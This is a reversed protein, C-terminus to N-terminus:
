SQPRPARNSSAVRPSLAWSLGVRLTPHRRRHHLPGKAQRTEHSPAKIASNEGRGKEVSSWRKAKLLAISVIRFTQLFILIFGDMKPIHDHGEERPWNKQLHESASNSEAVVRRLLIESSEQKGNALVSNFGRRFICFRIFVRDLAEVFPIISGHWPLLGNQGKKGPM